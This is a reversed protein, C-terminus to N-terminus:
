SEENQTEYAVAKRTEWVHEFYRSFPSYLSLQDGDRLVFKFTPAHASNDKEVLYPVFFLTKDFFFLRWLYPEEHRRAEINIGDHELADISAETFSIAAKWEKYNSGREGARVESLHASAKDAYLLRIQGERGKKKQATEFLLSRDGGMMGEGLQILIRTDRSKEFAHKVDSAAENFNNYVHVLGVQDRFRNAAMAAIKTCVLLWLRRRSLYFIILLVVLSVTGLVLANSTGVGVRTLLLTVLGTLATIIVFSFLNDILGSRM